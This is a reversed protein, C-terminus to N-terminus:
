RYPVLQLRRRAGHLPSRREGLPRVGNPGVHKSLWINYRERASAHMGVLLCRSIVETPRADYPDRLGSLTSWPRGCPGGRCNGAPQKTDAKSAGGTGTAQFRGESVRKKRNLRSMIASLISNTKLENKAGFLALDQTNLLDKLENGRNLIKKQLPPRRSGTKSNEPLPAHGHAGLIPPEVRRRRLSGQPGSEHRRGAGHAPLLAPSRGAGTETFGAVLIGSKRKSGCM